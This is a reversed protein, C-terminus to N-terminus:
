GAYDTSVVDAAEAMLPLSTDENIQTLDLSDNTLTGLFQLKDERVGGKATFVLKLDPSRVLVARYSDEESSEGKIRVTIQVCDAARMTYDVFGTKANPYGIITGVSMPVKEVGKAM